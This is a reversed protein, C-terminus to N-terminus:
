LHRRRIFVFLAAAVAALPLVGLFVTLLIYTQTSTMNLTAVTVDVANVVVGVDRQAQYNLIEIFTQDNAFISDTLMAPDIFSGSACVFVSSMTEENNIIRKKVSMTGIIQEGKEDDEGPDSTSTQMVGATSFSKIAEYVTIGYVGGTEEEEDYAYGDVISLPRSLPACINLRGNTLDDYLDDSIVKEGDHIQSSLYVRPVTDSLLYNRETDYVIGDEIRVGWEELFAELNPLHPTDPDYFVMLGKGMKEANELYIDLMSLEEESFDYRPCYIVLVSIAALQERATLENEGDGTEDEDGAAAKEGEDRDLSALMALNVTSLTYINSEILSSTEEGIEAEGHGVTFAVNTSGSQNLYMIASTLKNEVTSIDYTYNQYSTTSFCDDLSFRRYNTIKGEEPQERSIVLIDGVDLSLYSFQGKFDADNVIDSDYTVSINGNSNLEYQDLLYKVQKDRAESSETFYVEDLMVYIDAGTELNALYNKTTDTMSFIKEGTVDVRLNFREVLVTCILNVLIVAAVFAATIATSLAGFKLRKRDLAPKKM